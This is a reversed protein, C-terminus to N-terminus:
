APFNDPSIWSLHECARKARGSSVVDSHIRDMIHVLARKLVVRETQAPMRTCFSGDPVETWRGGEKRFVDFRLLNTDDPDSEDFDGDQGEGLNVWDVRVLGRRLSPFGDVSRFKNEVPLARARTMSLQDMPKLSLSNLSRMPRSRSPRPRGSAIQRFFAGLLWSAAEDFGMERAERFIPGFLSNSM